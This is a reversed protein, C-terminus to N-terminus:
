ANLEGESEEIPAIFINNERDYTWGIGAPNENTLLIAEGLVQADELTDAVITNAVINGNILAFNAMVM